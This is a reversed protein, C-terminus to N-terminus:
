ELCIGCESVATQQCRSALWGSLIPRERQRVHLQLEAVLQARRRRQGIQAASTEIRYHEAGTTCMAVTAHQRAILVAGYIELQIALHSQGGRNASSPHM